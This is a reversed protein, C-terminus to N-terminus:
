LIAIHRIWASPKRGSGDGKHFGRYLNECHENWDPIYKRKTVGYRLQFEMLLSDVIFSTYLKEPIQGM